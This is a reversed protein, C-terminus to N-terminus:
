VPVYIDESGYISIDIILKKSNLSQHNMYCCINNIISYWIKTLTVLRGRTFLPTRVKWQSWELVYSSEAVTTPADNM